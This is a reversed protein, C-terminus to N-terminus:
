VSLSSFGLCKSINALAIRDAGIGDIQHPEVHQGQVNGALSSGTIQASRQRRRCLPLALALPARTRLPAGHGIATVQEEARRHAVLWHKITGPQKSCSRCSRGAGEQVPEPPRRDM